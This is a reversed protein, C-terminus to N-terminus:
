GDIQVLNPIMPYGLICPDLLILSMIIQDTIQCNIHFNQHVYQYKWSFVVLNCQDCVLLVLLILKFHSFSYIHTCHYLRHRWDEDFVRNYSHWREGRIVHTTSHDSCCIGAAAQFSDLLYITQPPKVEFVSCCSQLETVLLLEQDITHINRQIVAIGVCRAM